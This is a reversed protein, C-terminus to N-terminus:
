SVSKRQEDEFEVLSQSIALAKTLLTGTYSRLAVSAISIAAETYVGDVEPIDKGELNTFANVTTKILEEM